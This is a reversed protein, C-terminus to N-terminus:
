KKPERAGLENKGKVKCGIILIVLWELVQMSLVNEFTISWPMVDPLKIAVMESWKGWNEITGLINPM